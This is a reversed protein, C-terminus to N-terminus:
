QDSDIAQLCEEMISLGQDLGTQDITLPALVRIVNGYTGCSILLLGKDRAAQVLKKALEPAPKKTAKDHVLELARMPGLGRADGICHFRGAWDEFRVRMREGMVTAKGLVDETEFVDLVALASACSVPNGGYTGGLGGIQPHDMLEKRGVVASIPMGGGMGKATVVLDPEVGWHEMAFMKGTRGFGSQVEDAIFVIGHEECIAKLKPFYDKPPVLFGGEGMVPEVILAGVNDARQVLVDRLAEACACGCTEPKLNYACRYCSGYPMRYIEPAFPGFGHKYPMVKSTLTAALLTRGHFANEFAIVGPRGTAHRAVKIANEVAEAGSNFLACMKDFKGPTAQILKEALDVYGEYMVVHFCTHILKDAQARVAEVVKPHNHGVNVVGIGSAFDIYQNGEVDTVVAGKATDAFLPAVNFVGKPVFKNRRELLEQNTPSM